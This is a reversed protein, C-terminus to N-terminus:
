DGRQTCKNLRICLGTVIHRCYKIIHQLKPQAEHVQMLVQWRLPFESRSRVRGSQLPLIVQLLGNGALGGSSHTSMIQTHWRTHVCAVRSRLTLSLLAICETMLPFTNLLMVCVSLAGQLSFMCECVCCVHTELSPPPPPAPWGYVILDDPQAYPLTHAEIRTKTHSTSQPIMESYMCASPISVCECKWAANCGHIQTSRAHTCAHTRMNRASAM